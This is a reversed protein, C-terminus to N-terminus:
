LSRHRSRNSLDYELVAGVSILLASVTWFSEVVGGTAYDSRTVIYAYRLDALYHSSIGCGIAMWTQSFRGGWFTLVIAAALVLILVDGIVYFLNLAEVMPELIQEVALVWGPAAVLIIIAWQWPMLRVKRFLVAFSM